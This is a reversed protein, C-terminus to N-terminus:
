DGKPFLEDVPIGYIDAIAKQLKPTQRRGDIIHTINQRSTNVSQAMDPQSIGTLKHLSKRINPLPFDLLKLQIVASHNKTNM